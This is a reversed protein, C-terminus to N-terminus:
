MLLDRDGHRSARGERLHFVGEICLPLGDARLRDTEDAVLDVLSEFFLEARLANRSCSPERTM